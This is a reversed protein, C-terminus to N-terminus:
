SFVATFAATFANSGSASSAALISASFVSEASETVAALALMSLSSTAIPFTDSARAVKPACCFRRSCVILLKVVVFSFKDSAFERIRSTSIASSIISNM